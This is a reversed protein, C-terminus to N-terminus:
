EVQGGSRCDAREQVEGRGLHSQCNIVQKTAAEEEEEEEKGAPTQRRNPM